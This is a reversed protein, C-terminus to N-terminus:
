FLPTVTVTANVTSATTVTRPAGVPTGVTATCARATASTDSVAISAPQGFTDRLFEYPVRMILQDSDDGTTVIVDGALSVTNSADVSFVHAYEASWADHVRRWEVQGLSNLKVLFASYSSGGVTDGYSSTGGAVLYGGDTTQGLPGWFEDEYDGGIVKQWQILGASDLKLV